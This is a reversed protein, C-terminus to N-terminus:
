RTELAAVGPLTKGELWELFAGGAASVYSMREAVGAHRLASVTDGGGGVSRLTGAETLRAAEKAVAVTAADFPALEFAGFPGNWVLTRAQALKAKVAAVTAPGVDLAMMGAPVDDLGVVRNPSHAAFGEAVVLDLPLMIECGGAKAQELIARATDHMEAEQLSKGVGHGQAALFTNAMAGGIVLVDVKKSLNGLLDLKTSVKAGGVIALVPRQPNGLAADLAELEAQMLRGAYAPILKAVGETSAHARHAASFADNVYVDALKAMGAALTPDNKEEGAHYRTNELLLVGGDTLAQAAAEAEAGICDDAFGVERGLTTALAAQMPKLSMEPVRKGKPRDFHSCIIVRGGKEALERITPALREIRTMDTIRGEKVPLNLDARLLIRKGRPDFADLTRFSM